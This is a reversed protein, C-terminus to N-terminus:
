AGIEALARLADDPEVANMCAHRLDGFRVCTNRLCPVCDLPKKQIAVFRGWVPLARAPDSPGFVVAAPVNMAAAVHMVGSDNLLLRDCRGVAWGLEALGLRGSLDLGTGAIAAVQACAPAEARSGLLMVGGGTRAVHERAVTAFRAADWTRAPAVSAPAVGLVPKPLNEVAERISADGPAAAPFFPRVTSLDLSEDGILKLYRHPYLLRADHCVRKTFALGRLGGGFGIREPTRSLLAEIAARASRPLVFLTDPQSAAIRRAAEMVGAGESYPLRVVGAVGPQALFIPELAAPCAVRIETDPFKAKLRGVFVTAVVADGLWQPARVTIKQMTKAM